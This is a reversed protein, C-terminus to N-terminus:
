WSTKAFLNARKLLNHHISKSFNTRISEFKIFQSLVCVNWEMSRRVVVNRNKQVVSDWSPATALEGLINNVVMKGQLAEREPMDWIVPVLKILPM